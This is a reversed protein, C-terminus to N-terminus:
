RRHPERSYESKMENLIQVTRKRNVFADAFGIVFYGESNRLPHRLIKKALKISRFNRKIENDEILMAITLGDWEGDVKDIQIQGIRDWPVLLDEKKNEGEFLIGRADAIFQPILRHNRPHGVSFLFALSLFGIFYQFFVNEQPFFTQFNYALWAFLCGVLFFIMLILKIAWPPTQYVFRIKAM